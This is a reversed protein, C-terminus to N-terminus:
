SSRLFLGVDETRFLEIKRENGFQDNFRFCAFDRFEGEKKHGFQSINNNYKYM